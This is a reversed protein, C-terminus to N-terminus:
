CNVAVPVKLSPVVCFMLETERHLVSAGATAVTLLLLPPLLPSAVPM